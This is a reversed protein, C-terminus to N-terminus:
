ELEVVLTVTATLAVEGPAVPTSGAGEAAMRLVPGPPPMRAQSESLSVVRKVRLGLARAYLDARARAKAVAATRAADLAADAEAVEFGPGSVENAGAAVLADIVRGARDLERMRVSVQNSAQYGDLRPARRDQYDYRPQLLLRSTQIDREAVGARRLAALVEGMRQANAQMAESATAAQTVVGATMVALDPAREVQADASITVLPGTASMAAPVPSAHALAPLAAALLAAVALRLRM